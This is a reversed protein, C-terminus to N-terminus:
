PKAGGSVKRKSSKNDKGDKKIGEPELIKIPQAKSDEVKKILWKYCDAFALVEYGLMDNFTAKNLARLLNEAKKIEKDDLMTFHPPIEGGRLINVGSLFVLLRLRVLTVFPM